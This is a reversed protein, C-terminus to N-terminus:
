GPSQSATGARSRGLDPVGQIEGKAPNSKEWCCIGLALLWNPPDWDQSRWSSGPPALFGM